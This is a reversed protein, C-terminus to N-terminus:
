TYWRSIYKLNLLLYQVTYSNRISYYIRKVASRNSTPQILAVINSKTIKWRISKKLPVNALLHELYGEYQLHDVCHWKYDCHTPVRHAITVTM